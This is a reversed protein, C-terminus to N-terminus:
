GVNTCGICHDVEPLAELREFPIPRACTGCVGYTGADLRALAEEHEVVSDLVSVLTERVLEREHPPDSSSFQDLASAAQTARERHADLQDTILMRLTRQQEPTLHTQLERAPITTVAKNTM